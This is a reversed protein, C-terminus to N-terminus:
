LNLIKIENVVLCANNEFKEFKVYPCFLASDDFMLNRLSHKILGGDGYLNEGIHNIRENDLIVVHRTSFDFLFHSAESAESESALFEEQVV